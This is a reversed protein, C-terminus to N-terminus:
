GRTAAVPRDMQMIEEEILMRAEGLSYTALAYLIRTQMFSLSNSQALRYTVMGIHFTDIYAEPRPSEQYKEIYHLSKRYNEMADGKRFARAIYKTANGILYGLGCDEVWDWHQYPAEYHDGGVQRDNAMLGKSGSGLTTAKASALSENHDRLKQAARPDIKADRYEDM